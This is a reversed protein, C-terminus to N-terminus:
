DDRGFIKELQQEGKYGAAGFAPRLYPASKVAGKGIATGARIWGKSVKPSIAAATAALEPILGAKGKALWSTIAAATSYMLGTFPINEPILRNMSKAIMSEEMKDLFKFGKGANDDVQKLIKELWPSDNYTRSMNKMVDGNELVKKAMDIEKEMVARARQAAKYPPFQELFGRVKGGIADVLHLDNETVGQMKSWADRNHNLKELFEEIRKMTGSPMQEIEKVMERIGTAFEPNTAKMMIKNKSDKFVDAAAKMIAKPKALIEGAAEFRVNEFMDQM